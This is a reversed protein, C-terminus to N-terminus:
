VAPTAPTAPVAVENFYSEGWGAAERSRQIRRILDNPTKATQATNIDKYSFEVVLPTKYLTWGKHFLSTMTSELNLSKFVDGALERAREAEYKMFGEVPDREIIVRGRRNDTFGWNRRPHWTSIRRTMVTAPIIETGAMNITNPMMVMQYTYDAKRFELYLAKGACDKENKANV